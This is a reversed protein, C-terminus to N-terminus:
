CGRKGVPVVAPPQHAFVGPATVSSFADRKAEDAAEGDAVHALLADEHPFVCLRLEVLLEAEVIVDEVELSRRLQDLVIPDSVIRQAPHVPHQAPFHPFVEVHASIRM